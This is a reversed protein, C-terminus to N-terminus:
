SHPVCMRLTIDAMIEITREDRPDPRLGLSDSFGLCHVKGKSPFEVFGASRPQWDPHAAAEDAHTTPAAFISVRPGQKSDFVIYKMSAGAEQDIALWRDCRGLDHLWHM